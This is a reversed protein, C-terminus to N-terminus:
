TQHPTKMNMYHQLAYCTLSTPTDNKTDIKRKRQTTNQKSLKTTAENFFNQLTSPKHGRAILRKYLRKANEIFDAHHTNQHYYTQLLGYILSKTMGPPHASHSPIYLFLNM